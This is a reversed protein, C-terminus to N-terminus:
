IENYLFGLLFGQINLFLSQEDSELTRRIINISVFCLLSSIYPAAVYLKTKM